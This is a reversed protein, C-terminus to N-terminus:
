DVVVKLGPISAQLEKAAAEAAKPVVLTELHRLRALERVEQGTMSTGSLGLERLESLKALHVLSRDTVDRSSLHLVELTGIGAIMPVTSDNLFWLNSDKLYLLRLRKM